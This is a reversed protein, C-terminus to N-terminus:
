HGLNDQHLEQYIEGSSRAAATGSFSPGSSTMVRDTYYAPDTKEDAFAAAAALSLTAALTLVALSLRMRTRREGDFSTNGKLNHKVRQDIRQVV